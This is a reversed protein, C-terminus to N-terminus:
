EYEIEGDYVHEAPGTMKIDAGEGSWEIDLDGGRQSVRMARDLLGWRRGVVAAACAGSGCARTEGAGREFVRLRLNRRDEIQMFGANVSDPFQKFSQLERGVEAVPYEDLRDVKSVTHPNGISVVGARLRGGKIVFEYSDAAEDCLFPVDAPVFSPAGMDVCVRGDSLVELQMVRDGSRVRMTAATTLGNMQAFRAVCRAGNGCQRAESGDANFVRFAFDADGSDAEVVLLQDFGIGTRRDAWGRVRVADLSLKLGLANVLMFDNGLGHMKSYPIRM